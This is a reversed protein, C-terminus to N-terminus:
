VLTAGHGLLFFIGLRSLQRLCFCLLFIFGEIFKVGGFSGIDREPKRSRGRITRGGAATFEKQGLANLETM